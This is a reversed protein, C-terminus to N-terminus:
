RGSKTRQDDLPAFRMARKLDYNFKSQIEHGDADLQRLTGADPLFFKQPRGHAPKLVLVKGDGAVDWSGQEDFTSNREEYTMRSVFTHDILLNIQYIIGPCDACPLTGIFTAPLNTVNPTQALSLGSVLFAALVAASFNWRKALVM